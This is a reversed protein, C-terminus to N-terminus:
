NQGIDPYQNRVEIKCPTLSLPRVINFFYVEMIVVDLPGPDAEAKESLMAISSTEKPCQHVLFSQWCTMKRYAIMM